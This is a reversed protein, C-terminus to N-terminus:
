YMDQNMACILTLFEPISPEKSDFIINAVTFSYNQTSFKAINTYFGDVQLGTHYWSINNRTRCNKYFTINMVPRSIKEDTNM